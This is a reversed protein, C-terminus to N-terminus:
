LLKKLRSKYDNFTIQGNIKVRPIEYIPDKKTANQKYRFGFAMKMKSEQFAVILSRSTHGYPYAFYNFGLQKSKAFDEKLEVFSKLEGGSLSGEMYHLNYSHSQFELNPYEKKVNNIIDEGVYHRVNSKEYDPTTENIRSGVLFATAKFNYKKLIPMVIHYIEYDGDDFTLVVTKRPVNKKGKYWDYFEDLSIVSFGMDKLYKMQMSFNNVSAVWQDNKFYKQKIENPVVRHFTLVPLENAYKSKPKVYPKNITVKTKSYKGNHARCYIYCSGYGKATVKGSSSVTAVKKNSSYWIKNTSILEKNKKESVFTTKLKYSDKLKLNISNKNVIVSKVNVKKSKSTLTVSSIAYSKSSYKKKGKIKGITSIRYTYKKNKDLKKDTWSNYNNNLEKIKKYKNKTNDYKYIVYGKAEEVKAWKLKVKSSNSKSAVFINVKEIGSSAYITKIIANNIYIVSFLFVIITILLYSKRNFKKNM